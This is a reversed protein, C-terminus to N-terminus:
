FVFVPKREFGPLRPIASNFGFRNSVRDGEKLYLRAAAGNGIGEVVVMRGGDSLQNVFASPVEDVAGEFFIRDYPAGAAWGATLPGEVVSVNGANEAGLATRAAAALTGDSELATVSKALPAMIAASYGLGCGVVLVADNTGVLLLQLLRAFSSPAMLKRNDAIALDSGIYALGRKEQPVFAERPVSLFSRLVNWDTVDETRIQNDVMTTRAHQFDMISGTKTWVMPAPIGEPGSTKFSKSGNPLRGIGDCAGVNKGIPLRCAFSLRLYVPNRFWM